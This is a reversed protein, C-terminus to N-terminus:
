GVMGAGRNLADAMAKMEDFSMPRLGHLTKQPRPQELPLGVFMALRALTVDAPPVERWYRALGGMESMTM